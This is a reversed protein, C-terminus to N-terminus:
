YTGIPLNIANLGTWGNAHGYVDYRVNSFSSSQSVTLISSYFTYSNNTGNATFPPSTWGSQNGGIYEYITVGGYGNGTNYRVEIKYKDGRKVRDNPFLFPGDGSCNGAIRRNDWVRIIRQCASESVLFSSFASSESTSAFATTINSALLVGLLGLVLSFKKM